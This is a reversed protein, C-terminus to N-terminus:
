PKCLSEHHLVGVVVVHPGCRLSHAPRQCSGSDEDTTDWDLILGSAVPSQTAVQASHVYVVRFSSPSPLPRGQYGSESVPDHRLDSVPYHRLENRRMLGQAATERPVEEVGEAPYHWGLERGFVGLGRGAGSVWPRTIGQLAGQTTRSTEFCFRLEPNFRADARLLTEPPARGNSILWHVCITSEDASGGAHPV